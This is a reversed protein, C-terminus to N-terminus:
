FIRTCWQGIKANKLESGTPIIGSYSENYVKAICKRVSIAKGAM